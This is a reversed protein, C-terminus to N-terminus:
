CDRLYRRDPERPLRVPKVAINGGVTAIRLLDMQGSMGHASLKRRHRCQRRPGVSITDSLIDDLANEGDTAYEIQSGHLLTIHLVEHLRAIVLDKSECGMGVDAPRRGQKMTSDAVPLSILEDTLATVEQGGPSRHTILTFRFDQGSSIMKRDQILQCLRLAPQTLESQPQDLRMGRLPKMM